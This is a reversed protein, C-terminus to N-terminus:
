KSCTDMGWTQRDATTLIAGQGHGRAQAEYSLLATRPRGAIAKHYSGNSLSVIGNYLAAWRDLLVQSLCPAPSNQPSPDSAWGLM